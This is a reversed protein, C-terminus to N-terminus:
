MLGKYVHHMLNEGDGRGCKKNSNSAVKNCETNITKGNAMDPKGVKLTDRTRAPNGRMRLTGTELSIPMKLADNGSHYIVVVGPM